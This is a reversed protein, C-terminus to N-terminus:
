FVVPLLAQHQGSGSTRLLPARPKPSGNRSGLGVDFGGVRVATLRGRLQAPPACSAPMSWRCRGVTSKRNAGDTCFRCRPTSKM